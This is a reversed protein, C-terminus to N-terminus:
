DDRLVAVLRHRVRLGGIVAGVALGVALTFGVATFPHRKIFHAADLRREAAVQFRGRMKRAWRDALYTLNEVTDESLAECPLAAAQRWAAMAANYVATAADRAREDITTAM